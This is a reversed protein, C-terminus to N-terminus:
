QPTFGVSLGQVPPNFYDALVTSSSLHRVEAVLRAAAQM